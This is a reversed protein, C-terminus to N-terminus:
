WKGSLRIGFRSPAAIWPGEGLEDAPGNSTPQVTQPTPSFFAYASIGTGALFLGSSLGLARNRKEKSPTMVTEGFEQAEPSIPSGTEQIILNWQEENDQYRSHLILGYVLGGLGAATTGVGSLLLVNQRPKASKTPAPVSLELAQLPPDPEEEPSALEEDYEGFDSPEPESDPADNEDLDDVDGYRERRSQQIRARRLREQAKREATREAEREATREAEREATREAEREATREAELLRDEEEWDIDDEDFDDDLRVPAFYQPRAGEEIDIEVMHVSVTTWRESTVAVTEEWDAFGESEARIRHGGCSMVLGEGSQRVPADDVYVRAMPPLGRLRVTGEGGINRMRLRATTTKEEYVTVRATGKMCGYQLDVVHEGPAVSDIIAPSTQDTPMGDLTIEGPANAVNVKIRGTAADASTGILFLLLLRIM